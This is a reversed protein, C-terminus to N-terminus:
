FFQRARANAKAMRGAGGLGGGGNGRIGRHDLREHALPATYERPGRDFFLPPVHLERVATRTRSTLIGAATNGEAGEGASIAEVLAAYASKSCSRVDDDSLALLDRQDDVGFPFAHGRADVIRLLADALRVHILQHGVASEVVTRFDHQEIRMM